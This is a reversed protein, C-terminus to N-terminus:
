GGETQPAWWAFVQRYTPTATPETAKASFEYVGRNWVIVHPPSVNSPVHVVAQVENRMDLLFAKHSTM